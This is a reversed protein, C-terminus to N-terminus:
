ELEIEIQENPLPIEVNFWEKAFERCDIHYEEQQATTNDTTSRGMQIIEGTAENVKETYLFKSKLMEHIEEKNYREGWSELMAAQILVVVVGWYYRNQPSSRVKRKNVITITIDKGNFETIVHALMKRNRALKNNEVRSNIVVKM